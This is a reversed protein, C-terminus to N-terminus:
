KYEFTTAVSGDKTEVTIAVQGAPAAPVDLIIHGDSTDIPDVSTRGVRVGVVKGLGSGTISVTGGTVPVSPPTVSTIEPKTAEGPSLIVDAVRKVLDRFTKERYGVLFAVVYYALNKTITAPTEDTGPTPDSGIALIGAMFVLVALVAVTAGILPRSYHWLEWDPDWSKSTYELTATLSILVAGVAGFWPVGLPMPGWSGPLPLRDEFHLYAVFLLVLLAVTEYVFVRHRSRTDSTLWNNMAKMWKPTKM